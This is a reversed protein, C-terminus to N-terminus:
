RTLLLTDFLEGTLEQTNEKSTKIYVPHFNLYCIHVLTSWNLEVYGLLRYGKDVKIYLPFYSDQIRNSQIYGHEALYTLEVKTFADIFLFPYQMGRSNPTQNIGISPEETSKLFAALQEDM